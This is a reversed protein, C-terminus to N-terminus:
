MILLPAFKEMQLILIFDHLWLKRLQLKMLNLFYTGLTTEVLFENPQDNLIIGPTSLSKVRDGRNLIDSKATTVTKAM